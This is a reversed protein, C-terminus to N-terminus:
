NSPCLFLGDGTLAFFVGYVDGFDDNVVSPGAGPPLTGQMDGVKRRLKDWIQPLQDAQYKDKMEAYVVSLGEQSTSWIEKLEDMKQIAEEIRDTVEKEVEEPTAGPYQTMVVATKIVFDPNELRGLKFYAGIGAVATVLSLVVTVVPKKIAFAAPNM